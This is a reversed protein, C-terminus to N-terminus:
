LLCVSPEAVARNQNQNQRSGEGDRVQVARQAAEDATEAADDAERISHIIKSYAQSVDVIAEQKTEEM